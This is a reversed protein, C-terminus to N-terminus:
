KRGKIKMIGLAGLGLLIGLGLIAKTYHEEKQDSNITKISTNKLNPTNENISTTIKQHHSELMKKPIEHKELMTFVRENDHKEAFKALTPHETEYAKRMTSYPGETYTKAAQIAHIGSGALVNGQSDCVATVIGKSNYIFHYLHAPDLDRARQIPMGIFKERAKLVREYYNTLDSHSSSYASHHSSSSNHSHSSSSSHHSSSSSTIFGGGYSIGFGGGSDVIHGGNGAHWEWLCIKYMKQMIYKPDEWRIHIM